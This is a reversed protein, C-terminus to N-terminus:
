CLVLLSTVSQRCSADFVQTRQHDVALIAQADRPLAATPLPRLQAPLAIAAATRPLRRFSRLRARAGRRGESKWWLRLVNTDHLAGTDVRRCNRRRERHTAGVALVPVLMLSHTRVVTCLVIYWHVKVDRWERSSLPSLVRSLVSSSLLCLRMTPIIARAM